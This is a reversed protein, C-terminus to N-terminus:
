FRKQDSRVRILLASGLWFGSCIARSAISAWSRAAPQATWPFFAQSAWSAFALGDALELCVGAGSVVDEEDIFFRDADDLGLFVREALVDGGDFVLGAGVGSGLEFVDLVGAFGQGEEVFGGADERAEGILAIGLGAGALGEREVTGFGEPFAEGLLREAGTEVVERREVGGTQACALDSGDGLQLFREFLGFGAGEHLHGGARTFGEGGDRGDVAQELVGADLADEEEDIGAVEAFLGLLLEEGVLRVVVSALEGFQVGDM